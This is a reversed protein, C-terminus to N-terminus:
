TPFFLRSNHGKFHVCFDCAQFKGFGLQSDCRVGFNVSDPYQAEKFIAVCAALRKSAVVSCFIVVLVSTYMM